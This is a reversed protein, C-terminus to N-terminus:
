YPIHSLKSGRFDTHRGHFGFQGSYKNHPPKVNWAEIGFREAVEIPAFKIDYREELYQRYIRCINHDEQYDKIISDNTPIIRSDTMLIDHLKKSRFSMAGNGVKYSDEYWHWPSGIYDYNYWEKNFKTGDLIYGDSQITIFYPTNIYQGLKMMMFFSYAIKSGLPHIPIVRIDSSQRCSLLKVEAFKIDRCSIDAAKIIADVNDDVAILTVDPLHVQKFDTAVDPPESASIHGMSSVEIGIHQIVSPKAVIVEKGDAEHKQSAMFDWNGIPTNLAPLLYKNYQEKNIVMNIGSAYKKKYYTEHEEIIPNRNKVLTNFGCVINDPFQKKLGMLVNVFDNRVLADGDINIVVDTRNFAIEYGRKLSDKIGMNKEKGLIYLDCGSMEFGKVMDLTEKNTSCDDVIVVLKVKSLDAMRVSDLCRKLYNPRNYTTILLSVKM